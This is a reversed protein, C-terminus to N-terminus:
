IENSVRWGGAIADVIMNPEQCDGIAYVEYSKGNLSNLLEPNPELPAVPMITDAKLTEKEGDKTTLLLGEDTIELSKVGNMTTVGKRDLWELFIGLRFDLMGEGFTEATDVITVNRGRKILFEAVECGQFGSGIIIVNKGIPLWFNTLWGLIRPGFLRLFPKVQRHLAPATVVKRNNIGKIEPVALTGGTAVIVVDPNVEDIFASNVEQGFKTEVGLKNLQTKFYRVMNPLDELEIGKILAALDLLGGLKSSKEYLTVEHGRIAAVRAAEMGAPGGGIVMVRKRKEAKDITNRETAM